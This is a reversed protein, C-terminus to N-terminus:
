APALVWKIAVAAVVIIVSWAIIAAIMLAGIAKFM